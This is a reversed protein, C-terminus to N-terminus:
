SCCSRGRGRACRGTNRRTSSISHILLRGCRHHICTHTYAHILTHTYSHMLRRVEDLNVCHHKAHVLLARIYGDTFDNWIPLQLEDFKARYEALIKIEDDQKDKQLAYEVELVERLQAAGETHNKAHALVAYVYDEDTNGVRELLLSFKQFYEGLIKAEKQYRSSMLAYDTDLAKRLESLDEHHAKAQQLVAVVFEDDFKATYQSLQKFKKGYEQLIALERKDRTKQDPGALGIMALAWSPDMWSTAMAGIVDQARDVAGRGTAKGEARDGPSGEEGDDSVTDEGVAVDGM